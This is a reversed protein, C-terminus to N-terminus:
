GAERAPRAGAARSTLSSVALEENLVDTEPQGAIRASSATGRRTYGGGLMGNTVFWPFLWVPKKLM